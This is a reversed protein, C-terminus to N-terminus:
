SADQLLIEKLVPQRDEGKTSHLEGDKLQLLVDIRRTRTSSATPAAPGLEMPAFSNNQKM